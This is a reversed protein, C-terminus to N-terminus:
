ICSGAIKYGRDSNELEGEVIDTFHAPINFIKYAPFLFKRIIKRGYYIQVLADQSNPEKLYWIKFRFGKYRQESSLALKERKLFESM